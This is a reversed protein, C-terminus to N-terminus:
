SNEGFRREREAQQCEEFTPLGVLEMPLSWLFEMAVCLQNGLENIYEPDQEGERLYNAVRVACARGDQPMAYVMQRLADLIAEAEETISISDAGSEQPDVM